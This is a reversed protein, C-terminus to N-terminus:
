ERRFNKLYYGIILPVDQDYSDIGAAVGNFRLYAQLVKSSIGSVAPNRGGEWFQRSADLDASPGPAVMDRYRGADANEIEGLVKVGHLYGSYRVYPDEANICIVYAIFNAEDERAYGRQHAKQNAIAFPLESPPILENISPEGTFPVYVGSFGLMSLLHSLYFPKPPGLGGQSAEQLSDTKQFSDEIVQYLRQRTLPLTSTRAWDQGEGAAKYNQNIGEVIRAGIAQLEGSNTPRLELDWTEAIPSRKFNLGWFILFILYVLGFAWTLSLFLLKAVDVIGSQGYYARRVNWAVWTVFWIALAALIIEGLSFGVFKNFFSLGRAIYYYILQSYVVEVVAPMLGAVTHIILAILLLQAARWILKVKGTKKAPAAKEAGANAVAAAAPPPSSEEAM